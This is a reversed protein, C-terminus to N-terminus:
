CAILKSKPHPVGDLCPFCHPLDRSRMPERDPRRIAVVVLGSPVDIGLPELSEPRGLVHHVMNTGAGYARRRLRGSRRVLVAWPHLALQTGTTPADAIGDM